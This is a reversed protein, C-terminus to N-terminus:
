GRADHDRDRPCAHPRSLPAHDAGSRDIDTRDALPWAEARRAPLCLVRIFRVAALLALRDLVAQERARGDAYRRDARLRRDTRVDLLDPATEAPQCGALTMRIIGVCSGPVHRASLRHMPVTRSLWSFAMSRRMWCCSSTSASM